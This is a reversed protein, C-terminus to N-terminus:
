KARELVQSAFFKASSLFQEDEFTSNVISVFVGGRHAAFGNVMSDPIFEAKEGIGGMQQIKSRDKNAELLQYWNEAESSGAIRRARVTFTNGRGATTYTCSFDTGASDNTGTFGKGLAKDIDDVSFLGCVDIPGAAKPTVVPTSSVSAAPAGCGVFTMAAVFLAVHYVLGKRFTLM